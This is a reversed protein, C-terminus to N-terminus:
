RIMFIVGKRVGVDGETSEYTLRYNYVGNSAYHAGNQVEGTWVFHPDETEAVIEGFRNYLTFHIKAINYTEMKWVDNIGDNDPTFTNPLYITFSCDEYSVMVQDEITGCDNSVAVTYLGSEYVATSSTTAENNWYYESNNSHFANLLVAQDICGVAESPLDVFPLPRTTVSVSDTISCPGDVITVGYTGATSTTFTDNISGGSWQGPEAITFTVGEDECISVDPGLELYPLVVAIVEVFSSSSCGDNTVTVDYIGAQQVNQSADTVGNEWLVEDWVSGANITVEGNPCLLVPSALNLVPLPIESVNLGDSYSCGFLTSATLVYSGPTAVVITLQNEENPNIDGNPTSWQLTHFNGNVVATVTTNTGECFFQDPGTLVALPPEIPVNVEDTAVLGCDDTLTITYTATEFITCATNASMPNTLGAAPSWEFNGDSGSASLVVGEGPCSMMVPDATVTPFPLVTLAVQDADTCGNIDIGIVSYNVNALPTSNVASGNTTNLYTAPTWTYTAAGSANLAYPLGYCVDADNSCTVTPLAYVEIDIMNSGGCQDSADFFITHVGVGAIQPDFTNNGLVGNGFFTGPMDAFLFIPAADICLNNVPEIAPVYQPVVEIVYTASYTCPISPTFAISFSGIGAALPDFTGDPAIFPGSFTGPYNAAYAVPGQFQCIQNPGAITSTNWGLFTFTETDNLNNQGSEGTCSTADIASNPSCDSVVSLTFDITEMPNVLPPNLTTVDLTMSFNYPFATIQDLSDAIFQYPDSSIEAYTNCQIPSIVTIPPVAFISATTASCSNDTIASSYGPPTSYTITQMGGCGSMGTFTLTADTLAGIDGGICDYIQVAWGANTTECGYFASWNPATSNLGYTGFTGSLPTTAACINLNNTSETSFCLSSINNGSNCVSGQGIAGPNPSLVVSPSGCSAPGVLYFALDSVWTHTGSFCVNIQTNADVFMPNPPLNSYGSTFGGNGWPPTIDIIGELVIQTCSPDISFLDVNLGGGSDGNLYQVIWANDCGVVTGGAETIVVNYAGPALNDIVSIDPTLESLFFSWVGTQVNFYNWTFTFPGTGSPPTAQLAGLEQVPYFYISDNPNNNTYQTLEACTFGTIQARLQLVACFLIWILLSKRM